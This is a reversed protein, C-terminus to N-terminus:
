SLLENTVKANSVSEVSTFKRKKIEVYKPRAVPCSTFIEAIRFSVAFIKMAGTM